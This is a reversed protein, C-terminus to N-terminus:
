GVQQLLGELRTYNAEWEADWAADAPVAKADAVHTDYAAGIWALATQAEQSSIPQRTACMSTMWTDIQAWEDAEGQYYSADSAPYRNDSGDALAKAEQSDLSEDEALTAEAWSCDAASFLAAAATPSPTATVLPLLKPAPPLTTAPTATPRPTAAPTATPTSTSITIPASSFPELPSATASASPALSGFFQEMAHVEPSVAPVRGGAADVALGTALVGCAFACLVACGKV